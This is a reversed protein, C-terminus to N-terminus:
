RRPRSRSPPLLSPSGALAPRGGGHTRESAVRGCACFCLVIILRAATSTAPPPLAAHQPRPGAHRRPCPTAPLLSSRAASASAAAVHRTVTDLTPICPASSPRLLHPRHNPTRALRHRSVSCLLAALTPPPNTPIRTSAFGFLDQRQTTGEGGRPTRLNASSEHRRRGVMDAAAAGGRDLGHKAGGEDAM